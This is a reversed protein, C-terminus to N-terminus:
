PNVLGQYEVDRAFPAVRSRDGNAIAYAVAAMAAQAQASADPEPTDTGTAPDFGTVTADAAISGFWGSKILGGSYVYMWNSAAPTEDGWGNRDLPTKPTDGEITIVISDSLTAGTVDDTLTDLDAWFADLVARLASIKAKLSAMDGFATHPDDRPGPMIVSQTLNWRFAKATVILSEGLAVVDPAMGAVDIGYRARDADAIALKDALNMGVFKAASRATAYSDQTTSRDAARNLGALAAYGAKFTEANRPDSLVGGARSAASNFLGVIDRGTPVTAVRPAGPASGYALNDIAFVPVLCPNVSQLAAAVAFVSSGALARTISTPNPDHTENRGAMIATIQREGPIAAFPTDPGRVLNRTGPVLAAEGPAHWSFTDSAALGIATHPWMLQFWALGGIPARIHVSRKTTVATAAEAVGRGATRELVEAIRSRGLGLAAGAALSWRILARRSLQEDRDRKTM